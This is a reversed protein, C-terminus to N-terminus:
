KKRLDIPSVLLSLYTQIYEKNCRITNQHLINKAPAFRVARCTPQDCARSPVACFVFDLMVREIKSSSARFKAHLYIKVARLWNRVFSTCFYLFTCLYLLVWLEAMKQAVSELNQMSTWISQWVLHCLVFICFYLTCFLFTCFYLFAFFYLFICFIYFACFVFIFLVQAGAILVIVFYLLVFICFYFFVSSRWSNACHCLVFTFFICFYFFFVQAGAILVIVFYLLLFICFYFFVFTFFVSSRWSNACHCLVFICFYFLVFICFRLFICFICFFVYFFYFCLFHLFAFFL